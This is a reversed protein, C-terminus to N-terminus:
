WPTFDEAPNSRTHRSRSNLVIGGLHEVSRECNPPCPVPPPCPRPIFEISKISAPMIIAGEPYRLVEQLSNVALAFEHENLYSEVEISRMPNEAFHSNFHIRYKHM